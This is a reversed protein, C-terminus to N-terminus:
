IKEGDESNTKAIGQLTDPCTEQYAKVSRITKARGWSSSEDASQSERRLRRPKVNPKFSGGVKAETVFVRNIRGRDREARRQSRVPSM